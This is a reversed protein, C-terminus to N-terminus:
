WGGGGMGGAGGGGFGGGGFGGGGFGRGFGGSGMQRFAQTNIHNVNTVIGRHFMNMFYLSQLMRMNFYPDIYWDPPSIAIGEFNKAWKNTLGLAYAYPLINYYYSPNEEVLLKLRDLEATEIFHKFASCEGYWRNGKETRVMCSSGLFGIIYNIVIQIGTLVLSRSFLVTLANFLLFLISSYVIRNKQSFILICTGIFSAAGVFLLIELELTRYVLYSSAIGYFISSNLAILMILFKASYTKGSVITNSGTFWDRLQEKASIFANGMYRKATLSKLLPTDSRSFIANFITREYNPRDLPIDQVKCIQFDSQRQDPSLNEITLWGQDAFYILLSVLTEDTIKNNVIYAVQASDLGDPPYFTVPELPKKGKGIFFYVLAAIIISAAIAIYYTPLFERGTRINQFYGDPLAIRVSVVQGPTIERTNSATIQKGNVNFTMNTAETSAYEGDFFLVNKADFDKPMDITVNLHEIPNELYQSIINQYVDDFSSIGDDGPDYTYSYTYNQVGTVYKDPDGIQIIYADGDTSTEFPQGSEVNVNEIVASYNSATEKGDVERYYTGRRAITRYIGHNYSDFTVKENITIDYSHNENVKMHYDMDNITITNRNSSSPYNYYDEYDGYDDYDGGYNFYYFGFVQSPWVILLLLSILLTLIRKM